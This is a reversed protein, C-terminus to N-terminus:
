EDDSKVGAEELLYELCIISMQIGLNSIKKLLELENDSLGKKLYYDKIKLTINSISNNYRIIESLGDDFYKSM